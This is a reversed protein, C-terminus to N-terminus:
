KIKLNSVQQAEADELQAMWAGVKSETETKARRPLDHDPEVSGAIGDPGGAMPAAQADSAHNDTNSSSSSSNASAKSKQKKSKKAGGKTNGRKPKNNKSKSNSRKPRTPTGGVEPESRDRQQSQQDLSNFSLYQKYAPSVSLSIAVDGEEYLKTTRRFNIM